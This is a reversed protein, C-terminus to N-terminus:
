FFSRFMYHGGSDTHHHAYDNKPHDALLIGTKYMKVPLHTIEKVAAVKRLISNEFAM